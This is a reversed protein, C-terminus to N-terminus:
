AEIDSTMLSRSLFCARVIVVIGEAECLTTPESGLEM